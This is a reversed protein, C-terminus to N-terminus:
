FSDELRVFGEESRPASHRKGTPGHWTYNGEEQKGTAVNREGSSSGSNHLEGESNHLKKDKHKKKAV